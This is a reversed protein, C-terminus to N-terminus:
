KAHREITTLNAAVMKYPHWEGDIEHINFKMIGSGDALRIFIVPYIGPRIRIRAKGAPFGKLPKPESPCFPFIPTTM